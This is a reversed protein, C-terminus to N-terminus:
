VVVAWTEPVLRFGSGEPVIHAFAPLHLHGNVRRFQKGAEVMGASSIARRVSSLVAAIM